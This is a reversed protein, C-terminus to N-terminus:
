TVTSSVNSLSWRTTVCVDVEESLGEFNVNEAASLPKCLNHKVGEPEAATVTPPQNVFAPTVVPPHSISHPSPWQHSSYSRPPPCSYPPYCQPFPSPTLNSIPPHSVPASRESPSYIMCATARLQRLYSRSASNLSWLSDVFAFITLHVSM